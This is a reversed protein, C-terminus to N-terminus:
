KGAFHRMFQGREWAAPDLSKDISMMARFSEVTAFDRKNMWNQVQDLMAPVTKLGNKYLASAVQVTKAGALIQKIVANGDHVGTSASIDCSVRNAMIAVWRLSNTVDEPASYLNAPVVALNDVDIDPSFFRNFLVLADVGTESLDKIMRGLNSFYSSIKLAVPIKVEAKVKKIIDFYVAENDAGSRNMDSPLIFANMELADAGASEVRKAFDTWENASVCNVSAIIPISVSKKADEILNLYKSVGDEVSGFDFMDYIEPYIYSPRTMDTLKDRMEAVIEEEFISKLVIAGVGSQELEKVGELHESLGSSGAIVPNKLNLGM